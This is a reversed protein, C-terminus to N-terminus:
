ATTTAQQLLPYLNRAIYRKLCRLTETRTKNDQTTRRQLYAITAPDRTSRLFAIRWLAKNAQRDGGRDLRHRQHKGSSAPIPAVGCLHAFAPESHMRDPNDGAALVLAAASIPGICPQDLLPQHRQQLWTTIARHHHKAETDLDLWRQAAHTLPSSTTALTTITTRTLRGLPQTPNLHRNMAHIENGVQTRATIASNHFVYHARLEALHEHHKPPQTRQLTRAANAAQEADLPDSKGRRRRTARDPGTVEVVDLHHHRCATALHAGYSSTGEIGVRTVHHSTLLEIAQTLGETTAEVRHSSLLHADADILAIQHFEAHTDIGAYIPSSTHTMM